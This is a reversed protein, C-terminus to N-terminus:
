QECVCTEFFVEDHAILKADLFHQHTSECLEACKCYTGDWEYSYESGCVCNTRIFSQVRDVLLQQYKLIQILHWSQQISHQKACMSIFNSVSHHYM